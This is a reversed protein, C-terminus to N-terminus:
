YKKPRLIYKEDIFEDCINCTDCDSPCAKIKEFFNTDILKKNDIFNISRWDPDVPFDIIDFLNWDYKQSLYANLVKEIKETSYDRSVIKFYDVKNEYFWVDEPRIFCSRFILKKNQKFM